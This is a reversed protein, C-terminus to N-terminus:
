ILFLLEQWAHNIIYLYLNKSASVITALSGIFMKKIFGLM